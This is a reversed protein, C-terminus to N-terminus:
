VDFWKGEEALLTNEFIQKAEQLHNSLQAYRNSFHGLILTKVNAKHAITAAQKATSHKTEAARNALEDTFTAEHYLVDTQKIVDTVPEYYATDSCYAYSKSLEAPLTLEESKIIQGNPMIFDKGKKISNFYAVPINYEIIKDTNLHPLKQKEKILYGSCPIRHDLPISYVEIKNDEFILYHKQTNVTEITLPYNVKHGTIEFHTDIIKKLGEPAFVTIPKTRGLLHMTQLLGILGLYHDGHLHSIFIQEIRQFKIKNERLRNQTAEGCDILYHKDDVSVIQASPNRRSTPIASGCGLILVKFAM